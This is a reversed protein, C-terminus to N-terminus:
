DMRICPITYTTGAASQAISLGHVESAFGPCATETDRCFELYAAVSRDDTGFREGPMILPIGPPYPVVMVAAVRGALADIPVNDVHGRVLADYADAPTMVATPITTYIDQMLRLAHHQAILDHMRRCLDRLGLGAYVSANEAYLAPFVDEVAANADFLAKFEFLEALLSGWKGRTIGISFLVLFSYLGTKEVVLGRTWLFRAVVAAPIGWDALAGDSGIGPTLITVKIPDLMVHGSALVEFGHWSAEHRVLWAEPAPTTAPEATGSDQRTGVATPPQWLRFWWDPTELEDTVRAFRERFAMAEDLTDEVLARGNAGRMMRSAVDLSAIIGYQPSTSTHMMFAENFREADHPQADSARVHVMSAQSFAALLKHTSQTTFTAPAGPQAAGEAMGFRGAYFPHFRAYAFWAEDFHLVDVSGALTARLADVDYCLGDYTSNTIVALRAHRCGEPVLPHEALRQAIREATLEARPIPGIIGYANRTTPLYVPIAGTMVIAHLISKHCNRDVLVVDGRAVNAHWVIKNATSTGNTVFYTRDAGFTRAAEREAEGVVGSHELLSGLEPVSVSLDSRLVNEGFYEFFARGVPSKLFAVGGSHGPTHWSYKYEEGYRVLQAFFPPLLRDLYESAAEAVHGAIFTPTDELKWFYGRVHRLAEISISQLAVKDTCLFIPVDTNRARIRAILAELPGSAAAGDIDGNIVVAAIEPHAQIMGAGAAASDAVLVGDHRQELQTKLAHIMAAGASRETWEPDIVLVPFQERWSM